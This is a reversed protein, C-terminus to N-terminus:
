RMLMVTGKFHHRNNDGDKATLTYIYTESPSGEGTWAPQPSGSATTYMAGYVLEGWRNYITLEYSKCSSLVPKFVENTNDKNPSFSNPIFYLFTDAHYVLASADRYFTNKHYATATIKYNPTDSYERTILLRGFRM